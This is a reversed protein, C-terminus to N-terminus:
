VHHRDHAHLRPVDARLGARVGHRVNEAALARRVITAHPLLGQVHGADSPSAILQMANATLRHGGCTRPHACSAPRGYPRGCDCSPCLPITHKCGTSGHMLRPKRNKGALANRLVPLLLQRGALQVARHRGFSLRRSGYAPLCASTAHEGGAAMGDRSSTPQTRGHTKSARTTRALEAALLKRSLERTGGRYGEM